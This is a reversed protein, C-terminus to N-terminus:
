FRYYRSQSYAQKYLPRGISIFILSDLMSQFVFNYFALNLREDGATDTLKIVYLEILYILTKTSIVILVSIQYVKHSLFLFLMSSLLWLWVIVRFIELEQGTRSNVLLLIEQTAIMLNLLLMTKRMKSKYKVRLQKNYFIELGKKDKAFGYAVGCAKKLFKGIGESGEKDKDM